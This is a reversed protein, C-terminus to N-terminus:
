FLGWYWSAIADGWLAAIALGVSLYPALPMATGKALRRAIGVIAALVIGLLAALLVAKWGLLLGAAAMLKVDGFGMGGEDGMHITLLAVICLPVAVAISGLLREYFPMDRLFILAAVGLVALAIVLGDPIEMTRADIISIVLLLSLAFAYVLAKLTFGLLAFSLVALAGNALEILPYQPSIEGKCYRCKGRLFLYSFLPFLEFWQLRHGCHMCHSSGFVISEGKPIRYICVNLFSGIILGFLFIMSFLVFPM